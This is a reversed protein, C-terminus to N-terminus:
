YTVYRNPPPAAPEHLAPLSTESMFAALAVSLVLDDHQGERWATLPDTKAAAAVTVPKAKFSELEKRLMAVHPLATPFVIRRTQLLVQLAGVLEQRPILIGTGPVREAKLGPGIMVPVFRCTVRRALSDTFFRFVSRGVGTQDIGCVAGPLPPTRLLKGLEDIIDSYPTGLSFRQLHILAHTPRKQAPAHSTHVLPRQIVALGTLEGAPALDLGVFHRMASPNM